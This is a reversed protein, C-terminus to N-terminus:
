PEPLKPARKHPYSPVTFSAAAWILALADAEATAALVAAPTEAIAAADDADATPALVAPPTAAIAAVEEAEELAILTRSADDFKAADEVEVAAACITESADAVIAATEDASAVASFSNLNVTWMKAVPLMAVNPTLFADADVVTVGCSETVVFL